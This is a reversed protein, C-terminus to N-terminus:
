SLLDALRALKMGEIKAGGETADIFEIGKVDRIRNEIWLRFMDLNRSTYILKGHIDEVQRMDKMLVAERRSTDSAHAYNDTYALDLGIFIIRRSGFTIGIDLATTSVSGGTQFLRLGKEAAFEEAKKYGRQCVLYKKGRYNAAFSYFATSLYLMPVDQDELGAIQKYVRPNPDTVIVYDPRIGAKMLKKFVTGTVLLIAKNKDKLKRLEMFNHDLSPGAAVIYLDKGEFEPQLEDVFGNYNRINHNFNGKLLVAQNKVANHQIFYNELKERVPKNGIMTLSPYHILLEEKEGLGEIRKALKTFDPDYFLRIYPNQFLMINDTYSCALRIINIDSEYIDVSMYPNLQYLEYLHYGLGLGYILYGTKEESFWSRALLAAEKWVDMNSHLYRKKSGSGVALTMDGASTYEVSYNPDIRDDFSLLSKLTPDAQLLISANQMFHDRDAEVENGSCIMEQLQYVVPALKLEYLDALLIYDKREQAELLDQLIPMFIDAEPRFGYGSFYDGCKPLLEMINMIKDLLPGANRLASDYNQERFAMIIRGLEALLTKNIQYLNRISAELINEGKEKM